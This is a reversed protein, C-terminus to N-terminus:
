IVGSKRAEKYNPVIEWGDVLRIYRASSKLEEIKDITLECVGM